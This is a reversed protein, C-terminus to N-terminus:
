LRVGHQNGVEVEVEGVVENGLFGEGGAISGTHEVQLSSAAMGVAHETIERVQQPRAVQQDEVVGAYKWRPEIAAALAGTGVRDARVIGRGSIEKVAADFNQQRALKGRMGVIPFAQHAGAALNLDPFAEEETVTVFQLGLDEGARLEAQAVEAELGDKVAAVIEESGEIADAVNRERRIDRAGIRGAIAFAILGDVGLLASRYGGGGGAKMECGINEVADAPAADVGDFDGEVDAQSSELGDADLANFIVLNM